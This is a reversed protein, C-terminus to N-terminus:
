HEVNYLIGSGRVCIRRFVVLGGLRRCLGDRMTLSGGTESRASFASAASVAPAPRGAWRSVQGFGGAVVGLGCRGFVGAAGVGGVPAMIGRQARRWPTPARGGSGCVRRGRYRRRRRRRVRLRWAARGDGGDLPPQRREDPIEGLAAFGEIAGVAVDGGHEGADAAGVAPRRLLLLRHQRLVQEVIIAVSSRPSRRPRRSRAMRSSPKAPPRRRESITPRSMRDRLRARRGAPDFNEGFTKQQRQAAFGAPALDLDAAAGGVGGARDDRQLGPQFEGPDLAPRHKTADDPSATPASRSVSLCTARRTLRVASAAPTRPSRESARAPAFLEGAM